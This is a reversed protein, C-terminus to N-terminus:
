SCLQMSRPKVITISIASVIYSSKKVIMVIFVATLVGETIAVVEAMTMVTTKTKVKQAM